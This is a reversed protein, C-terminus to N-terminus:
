GWVKERGVKYRRISLSNLVVSVSSFAMAISAVLPSLQLGFVPYLVGAAVPLALMNYFFAWFLNQRIKNMLYNSLALAQPVGALDNGVLIVDGAERAVEAGSGIAIGFDAQAIVPADNIGDGVFAVKSGRAQIEKVRKVKDQPL